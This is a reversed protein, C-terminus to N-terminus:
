ARSASCGIVFVSEIPQNNSCFAWSDSPYSVLSDTVKLSM